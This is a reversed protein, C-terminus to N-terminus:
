DNTDDLAHMASAAEPTRIEDGNPMLSKFSAINILAAEYRAVKAELASVTDVHHYKTMGESGDFIRDWFVNDGVKLVGWDIDGRDPAM